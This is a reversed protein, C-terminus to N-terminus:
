YGSSLRPWGSYCYSLVADAGVSIDLASQLIQSDILYIMCILSSIVPSGILVFVPQFQFDFRTIVFKINLLETQQLLM